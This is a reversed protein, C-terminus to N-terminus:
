NKFRKFFSQIIREGKSSTCVPCGRGKLLNAPTAKWSNKCIKCECLIKTKSNKYDEKISISPNVM